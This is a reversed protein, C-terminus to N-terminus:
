LVECYACEGSPRPARLPANCCKCRLGSSREVATRADAKAKEAMVEDIIEALRKDSLPKLTAVDGEM